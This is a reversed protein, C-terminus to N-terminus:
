HRGHRRVAVRKGGRKTVRRAGGRGVEAGLQRAEDHPFTSPTGAFPGRPTGPAPNRGRRVRRPTGPSPNRSDTRLTTSRGRKQKGHDHAGATPALPALTLALLMAAGPLLRKLM